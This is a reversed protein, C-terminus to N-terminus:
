RPARRGANIQRGQLATLDPIGLERGSQALELQRDAALEVAHQVAIM